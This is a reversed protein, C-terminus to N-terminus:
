QSIVHKIADIPIIGNAETTCAEEVDKGGTVAVGLVQRSDLTFVPGGSNGTIIPSDTLIRRITSITRFSAVNGVAIRGEDGTQYNPFGAILLKDMRKLNQNYVAQLPKIDELGPIDIIALDIAPISGRVKIPYKKTFNKRTFAHTRSGIVHHCTIFGVDELYFATGQKIDTECELIVLSDLLEEIKEDSLENSLNFNAEPPVPLSDIIEKIRRELLILKTIGIQIYNFSNIEFDYYQEESYEEELDGTYSAKRFNEILNLYGFDDDKIMKMGLKIIASSDVTIENQIMFRLRTEYDSDKGWLLKRISDLTYNGTNIEFMDISTILTQCYEKSIKDLIKGLVAIATLPYGIDFINTCQQIERFYVPRIVDELNQGKLIKELNEEIESLCFQDKKRGKIKTVNAM